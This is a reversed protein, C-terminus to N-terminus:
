SIVQLFEQYIVEHAYLKNLEVYNFYKDFVAKRKEKMDDQGNIVVDSIFRDIESYNKGATKYYADVLVKGMATHAQEPRTLYLLPKQTYIYEGLFSGSDMIMADSTNFYDIYSSESIAKANTYSNWKSIYDDYEDYSKFVGNGVCAARLNPHPKFLFSAKNQYKEILYLWFYANERFTSSVILGENFVSYHPAIIIKKVESANKGKPLKWLEEIQNSSYEPRNMLEDMKLYGSQVLNEGRLTEYKKYENINIETDEFVRWMLNVFDSDYVGNLSFSHDVNDVTNMGYPIYAHLCQWPLQLFQQERPLSTYWPSLHVLIDPVGGLQEFSPIPNGLGEKVEYGSEQFWELSEYYTKKMSEEDRDVLPSLIVYPHFRSDKKLDSYLSKAPWQAASYTLFAVQIVEGKRSKEKVHNEGCKIAIHYFSKYLEEGGDLVKHLMFLAQLHEYKYKAPINSADNFDGADAGDILEEVLKIYRTEEDM